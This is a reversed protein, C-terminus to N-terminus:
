NGESDKGALLVLTLTVITIIAFEVVALSCLAVTVDRLGSWRVFPTAVGCLFGLLATGVLVQLGHAVQLTRGRRVEVAISFEKGSRGGLEVLSIVILAASILTVAAGMSALLMGDSIRSTQSALLGSTSM